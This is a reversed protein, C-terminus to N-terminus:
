STGARTTATSSAALGLGLGLRGLRAPHHLDEQVARREIGLAAALDAVGARDHGLRADGVHVVGDVGHRPQHGVLRPQAALHLRPLVGQRRDVLVAPLGDPAIVGRRVQQVRRQPRHQTVVHALLARQDRGVVQAEVERVM